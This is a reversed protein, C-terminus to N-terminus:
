RSLRELVTGIESPGFTEADLEIDVAIQANIQQTLRGLLMDTYGPDTEPLLAFLTEDIAAIADCKRLSQAIVDSLLLFAKSLGQGGLHSQLAGVNKVTLAWVSVPREYRDAVSYYFKLLTYFDRRSFSARNVELVSELTSHPLIGSQLAAVGDPTIDYHYWPRTEVADGKTHGGCDLCLFGVTPEPSCAGCGGCLFVSGPKDYDVGYHRLEKHCKPCVLDRGDLFRTEEAQFACRYHHVLSEESLNSSRCEPCEERVNLRSSGCSACFHVRDFPRRSLLESATLEELLARPCSVGALLPYGVLDPTDPRWDASIRAERTYSLALAVLGQRDGSIPFAPLEDTRQRLTELARMASHLTGSSFSNASYDARPLTQGTLNLIPLLLKNHQYLGDYFTLPARPFALVLSFDDEVDRTHDVHDLHPHEGADGVVLFRPETEAYLVNDTNAFM